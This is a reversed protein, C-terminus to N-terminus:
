ERALLNNMTDAFLQRDELSTLGKLLEVLRRAEPQRIRKRREGVLLANTIEISWISPVIATRGELVVL